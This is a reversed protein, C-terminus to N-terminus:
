HINAVSDCVDRYNLPPIDENNPKNIEKKKM